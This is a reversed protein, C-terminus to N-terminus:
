AVPPKKVRWVNHCQLCLAMQVLGYQDTWVNHGHTSPHRAAINLDGLLEGSRGQCEFVDQILDCSLCYTTLAHLIAEFNAM